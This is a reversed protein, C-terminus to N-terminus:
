WQSDCMFNGFIGACVYSSVRVCVCVCLFISFTLFFPSLFFFPSPTPYPFYLWWHFYFPFFSFSPFLFLFSSVAISRTVIMPPPSWGRLWPRATAVGVIPARCRRSRKDEHEGSVAGHEALVEYGAECGWLVKAHWWVESGGGWRWCGQVGYGDTNQIYVAQGTRVSPSTGVTPLSLAVRWMWERRPLAYLLAKTTSGEERWWLANTQPAHVPVACTPTENIDRKSGSKLRDLNYQRSIHKVHYKHCM